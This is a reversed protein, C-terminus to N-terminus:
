VPAQEHVPLRRQEIRARLARYMDPEVADQCVLQLRTREGADVLMLRVFGAHAVARTIRYRRQEGDATRSCSGDDELKLECVSAPIGYRNQWWFSVGILAALGTKLGFAIPLIVLLLLAGAHTSLVILTLIFPKNINLIM